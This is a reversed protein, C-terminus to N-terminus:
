CIFCHGGTRFSPLVNCLIRIILAKVFVSAYFESQPATRHLETDNMSGIAALLITIIKSM